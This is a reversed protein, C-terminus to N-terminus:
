PVVYSGRSEVLPGTGNALVSPLFSLPTQANAIVVNWDITAGSPAVPLFGPLSSLNPITLSTSGNQFASTADVTIFDASTTSTNWAITAELALNSGAPFGTYNLTFAPFASPAPSVANSWEAPLNITLPGASNIIENVGVVFDKTASDDTSCDIFYSDGAQVAAAPMARYTSGASVQLGIVSGNATRFEVFLVAPIFGAPTNNVTVPEQVVEDSAGLAITNGGNIAGPVSQSRLIKVALVNNSADEAVVAFDNTGVPLNVNFSGSIASLTTGFGGKGGVIVKAAGPIATADVMGTASALPPPNQCSVSYTTGDALTAEVVFENTIQFGPPGEPPCVFALTYSTTGTPLTFSTQNNQITAATFAGSGMQVAAATPTGNTFTVTVTSSVPTPTPTPGTVVNNGGGCGTLALVLTGAFGFWIGRMEFSRETRLQNSTSLM